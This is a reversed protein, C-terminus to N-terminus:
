RVNLTQAEFISIFDRDFHRDEVFTNVDSTIAASFIALLRSILQGTLGPGSERSKWPFTKPKFSLVSTLMVLLSDLLMIMLSRRVHDTVWSETTNRLIFLTTYPNPLPHHVQLVHYLMTSAPIEWTVQLQAFSKNCWPLNGSLSSPQFTAEEPNSPHAQYLQISKLTRVSAPPRTVWKNKVYGVQM